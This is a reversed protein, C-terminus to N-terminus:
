FPIDSDLDIPTKASGPVREPKAMEDKPTFALSLFQGSKGAKLWGSVRYMKGGIMATGTRDPHNPKEKKENRFLNGSNDRQEYM